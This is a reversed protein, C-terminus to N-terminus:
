ALSRILSVSMVRHLEDSVGERGQPGPRDAKPGGRTLAEHDAQVRQHGKQTWVADNLQDEDQKAEHQQGVEQEAEHVVGHPPEVGEGQGPQEGEDGLGPHDLLVPGPGHDSAGGLYDDGSMQLRLVSLDEKVWSQDGYVNKNLKLAFTAAEFAM